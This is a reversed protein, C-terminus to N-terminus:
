RLTRALLARLARERVVPGGVLHRHDAPEVERAAAELTRRAEVSVVKLKDGALEEVSLVAGVSALAAVAARERMGRQAVVLAGVEGLEPGSPLLNRLDPRHDRGSRVDRGAHASSAADLRTTSRSPPPPVAASPTTGIAKTAGDDASLPFPGRRPPPTNVHHSALQRSVATSNPLPCAPWGRGGHCSTTVAASGGDEPEPWTGGLPRM